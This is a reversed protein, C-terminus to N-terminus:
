QLSLATKRSSPTTTSLKVFTQWSVQRAFAVAHVNRDGALPGPRLRQPEAVLNEDTGLAAGLDCGQWIVAFSHIRSAPAFAGLPM